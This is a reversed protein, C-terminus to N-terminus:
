QNKGAHYYPYPMFMLHRYRINMKVFVMAMPVMTVAVVAMTFMGRMTPRLVTVLMQMESTPSYCTIM